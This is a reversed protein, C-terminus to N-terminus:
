RAKGSGAARNGEPLGAKRLGDFWHAAQEPDRFTELREAGAITWPSSSGGQREHAAVFEKAIERAKATDGKQAHLAAYLLDVHIVYRPHGRKYFLRDLEALAKDYFSADGKGKFYYAWALDWRQWDPVRRARNLLEIGKDIRGAYIMAEGADAFLTRDDENLSLATDYATLALEFQGKHIYCFALCSHTFCDDPSLQVAKIAAAEADKLAADDAFGHYRMMLLNYALGAWARACNPDIRTATEFREHNKWADEKSLVSYNRMGTLYADYAARNSAEAM